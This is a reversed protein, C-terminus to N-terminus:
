DTDQHLHKDPWRTTQGYGFLNIALVRYRDKLAETLTLWQRNGSVSGHVLVV